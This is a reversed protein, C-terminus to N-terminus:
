KKSTDHEQRGDPSLNRKNGSLNALETSTKAPNTTDSEEVADEEKHDEM